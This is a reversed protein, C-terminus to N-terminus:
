IRASRPEAALLSQLSGMRFLGAELRSDAIVADSPIALAEAAIQATELARPLPSSLIRDITVDLAALGAAVQRMEAKGDPTLHRDADRLGPRREEADGHRLFFLHM